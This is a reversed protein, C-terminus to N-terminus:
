LLWFHWVNNIKTSYNQLTVKFKSVEDMQLFSGDTDARYSFVPVESEASAVNFSNNKM